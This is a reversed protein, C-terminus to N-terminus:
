NRPTEPHMGLQEAVRNIRRAQDRSGAAVRRGDEHGALAARRPVERTSHHSEDEM